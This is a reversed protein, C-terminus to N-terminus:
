LADMPETKPPLASLVSMAHRPLVTASALQSQLIGLERKNPLVNNWLLYAVEEFTANEVLDDIEYGRYVLHGRTGDILCIGSSNAVIGELGAPPRPSTAPAAKTM